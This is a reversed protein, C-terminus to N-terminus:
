AAFESPAGSRFFKEFGHTGVEFPILRLPPNVKIIFLGITLFFGSLDGQKMYKIPIYKFNYLMFYKEM